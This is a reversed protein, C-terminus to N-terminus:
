RRDGRASTAKGLSSLCRDICYRHRSNRASRKARDPLAALVEGESDLFVCSLGEDLKPLNGTKVCADLVLLDRWRPEQPDNVPWGKQWVDALYPPLFCAMEAPCVRDFLKEGLSTM